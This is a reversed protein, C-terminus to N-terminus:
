IRCYEKIVLNPTLIIDIEKCKTIFHLVEEKKNSNKVKCGGGSLRYTINKKIINQFKERKLFWDNTIKSECKPLWRFFLIINSSEFGWDGM